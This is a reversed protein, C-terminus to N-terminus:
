ADVDYAEANVVFLGRRVTVLDGDHEIRLQYVHSHRHGPGWRWGHRCWGDTDAADITVTCMSTGSGDDAGVTGTKTFEGDVVFTFDDGEYEDDVPIAFTRDDGATMTLQHQNM